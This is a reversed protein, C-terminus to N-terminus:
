FFVVGTDIKDRHLERGFIIATRECEVMYMSGFVGVTYIRVLIRM